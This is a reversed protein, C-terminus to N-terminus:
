TLLSFYQSQALLLHLPRSETHSPHHNPWCSASSANGAAAGHSHQLVSPGRPCRAPRKSTQLRRPHALPAAGPPPTQRCNPRPLVRRHGPTRLPSPNGCLCLLRRRGWGEKTGPGPSAAPGQIRTLRPGPDPHPRPGRAGTLKPGPDPHAQGRTRTLGYAGPDPHAQGRTRTLGHAGPDPHAQTGPGPSATPGQIRTLRAGPGPSVAPGQIRTLRPGPDPHPRPGRAGTLKPGPDPHAQGRTRTLGYAGPDPHAQGRTRALGHAGPDPHAQGRTRTLGRAGPDPHAQTGPGPSAAPGQIRTPRAGPGPSAAPGQIRTPRAGPGPPAAPGQIRTPRAGPGPPAAPGQIRTPRAGPGPPAAPGQIRTLRAGSGPSATPGQIRTLRAGPGPSATPGQIRTLRAGPGPSATPGNSDFRFSTFSFPLNIDQLLGELCLFLLQYPGPTDHSASVPPITFSDSHCKDLPGCNPIHKVGCGDPILRKKAVLDEFEDVNFKTFGWKKSIHIKHEKNQLKTRISMIVQGIHVRAVTGQPKGFAGRMGNGEKGPSVLLGVPALHLLIGNLQEMQMALLKEVKRLSNELSVKLNRRLDLDIEMFQVRCRLETPAM